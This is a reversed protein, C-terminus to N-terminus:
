LAVRNVLEPSDNKPSNVSKSVPYVQYDADDPVETAAGCVGFSEQHRTQAIKRVLKEAANVEVVGMADNRELLKEPTGNVAGTYAETLM